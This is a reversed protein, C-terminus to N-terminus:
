SPFAQHDREIVAVACARETREPHQFLHPQRVLQLHQRERRPHEGLFIERDIREAGDREHDIAFGLHRFGGADAM